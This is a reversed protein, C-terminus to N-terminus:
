SLASESTLEIGPYDIQETLSRSKDFYDELVISDPSRSMLEAFVMMTAWETNLRYLAELHKLMLYGNDYEEAINGRM